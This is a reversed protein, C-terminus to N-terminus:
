LEKEGKGPKIKEGIDKFGEEITKGAKGAGEEITKGTAGMKKGIAETLPVKRRVLVTDGEAIGLRAIDEPSMRVVDEEVMADAYASLVLPKPKEEEALPYRQIEIHEGTEIGLEPLVSEHVRARGRSPFARTQVKLYVGEMTPVSDAVHYKYIIGFLPSYFKYKIKINFDTDADTQRCEANGDSTGGNLVSVPFCGPRLAPPQM